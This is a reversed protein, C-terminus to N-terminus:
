AGAQFVGLTLTVVADFDIYVNGGEDVCRSPIPGIKLDGTNAPVAVVVDTTAGDSTTKQAQITMTQIGVAVNKIWILTRLPHPCSFWSGDANAASLTPVIAAALSMEQKTIETVPM